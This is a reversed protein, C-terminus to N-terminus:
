PLPLFSDVARQLSAFDHLDVVVVRESPELGCATTAVVPIGRSVAQLLRRPQHEVYAPYVVLGIADWNGDFPKPAVGDWFTDGELTRGACVVELGLEVALRKMEYAGKRGVASAPFLVKKGPFSSARPAAQATPLSWDLRVTKNPFLRALEAHPTICKRARNLAANELDVWVPNARYDHLTPSQPHRAFAGDLREHLKELPLRTLLVDFTRGGLAGTEFLYPLLNQQVVVHTAAVPIRQAAARAIRRDLRGTLEFVNNKNKPAFRLLLARFIGQIGASQTNKEGASSWSYRDTRVQRSPKLPLIFADTPSATDRVYRDFEPWQDDLVFVTTATERHHSPPGVHKFCARNGCSYCDNVHDSVLNEALESTSQASKQASRFTVVLRDSTLAVDMRFDFAARFRLDVYNWKVTADRDKEALSGRIVKTHKHREVIQFHAQLAADYLANSLQCLGGAVTPVICGERIERGVVYGQGWNPNGLHKWFSFVENAKIELGNLKKAAIRLNQIKGATLIWNEANDFPNWLDSESQAIVPAQVLNGDDRFKKVPNAGNQVWRRATLVRTKLGFLADKWRSHKEALEQRPENM